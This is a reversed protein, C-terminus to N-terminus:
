QIDLTLSARQFDGREIEMVIQVPSGAQVQALASRIAAAYVELSDVATRNITMIRDSSSMRMRRYRDQDADTSEGLWLGKLANGPALQEGLETARRRSLEIITSPVTTIAQVIASLNETGEEPSLRVTEETRQASLTVIQFITIGGGRTIRVDVPDISQGNEIAAAIADHQAAAAVQLEGATRIESRGLAALGDGPLLGLRMGARQLPGEAILVGSGDPAPQAQAAADRLAGFAALLLEPTTVSVIRSPLTDPPDASPGPTPQPQAEFIARTNGDGWAQPQWLRLAGDRSQTLMRGQDPLVVLERSVAMPGQMSLVEAGRSINWVRLGSHDGSIIRESNLYQLTNIQTTAGTLAQSPALTAANLVHVSGDATGIAVSDQGPSWAATTLKGTLAAEAVPAGSGADWLRVGGREDVSLLRAGDPAYRVAIVAAGHAELTRVLAGSPLAWIRVTGDWSATAAEGRVPDYDISRVPGTHGHLAARAVGTQVDFLIPTFDDRAVIIEDGSVSLAGQLSESRGFVFLGTNANAGGLDFFQIHYDGTLYAVRNGDRSVTFCQVFSAAGQRLVRQVPLRANWVGTLRDTYAVLISSDRTFKVLYAQRPLGPMEQLLVGTALDWVHFINSQGWTVMLAGDPSVIFDYIQTDNTSRFERIATGTAGDWLTVVSNDTLALTHETGPRFKARWVANRGDITWELPQGTEASWFKVTGDVLVSLVNGESMTSIGSPALVASRQTATEWVQMQRADDRGVFAYVYQEDPSFRALEAPASAGTFAATVAGTAAAWTEVVGDSRAALLTGGDGSFLISTWRAPGEKTYIAQRTVLDWVRVQGTRLRAALHSEGPAIEVDEVAEGTGLPLEYLPEGTRTDRVSIPRDNYFAGLLAGPEEQYVAYGEVRYRQNYALGILYGWEWQRLAPPTAWLTDKAAAFNRNKVFESALLVANHYGLAEAEVRAASEADRAQVAEQLAATENNKAAIAADRSQTIRVFAVTITLVIAAASLMAANLAHRYRGYFYTLREAASYNYAGVLSGSLFRNVDEGMQKASPYRNAKEKQLARYCISALAAPVHPERKAIPVPDEHQIQNILADVSGQDFAAHNALIEYLLAGLSFVDSRADIDDIRGGAQEPSMYHPSGLVEGTLTKDPSIAAEGHLRQLTDELSPHEPEKAGVVKALGWDIIVTEGFEGIMINSPKIDRHVVGRSHAYAIGMCVDVFNPLLKLRDELTKCEQLVTRLTKGRVLRMTYYISGNERRGLEYVPVISPHELRGTVRAERLFRAILAGSQRMPSAELGEAGQYVESAPLLEKLAIDRALLEDHVLLIRGMGGRSFESSGTYRGPREAVTVSEPLEEDFLKDPVNLALRTQVLERADSDAASKLLSAVREHGGLSELTKSVNGEYFDLGHAILGDLYQRSAESIVGSEVLSDAIAVTPNEAWSEIADVFQQADIYRLLHAFLAFLLNSDRAGVPWSGQDLPRAVEAM